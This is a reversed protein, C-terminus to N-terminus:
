MGSVKICVSWSNKQCKRNRESPSLECERNRDKHQMETVLQLDKRHQWWKLQNVGKFESALMKLRIKKKGLQPKLGKKLLGSCIINQCSGVQTSISVKVNILCQHLHPNRWPYFGRLSPSLSKLRQTGTQMEHKRRCKWDPNGGWTERNQWADKFPYSHQAVNKFLIIPYTYQISVISSWLCSRLRFDSSPNTRFPVCQM